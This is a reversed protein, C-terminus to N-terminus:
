RGGGVEQWTGSWGPCPSGICRESPSSGPLWCGSLSSSCRQQTGGPQRQGRHSCQPAPRGFWLGCRRYTDEDGGTGLLHSKKTTWKGTTLSFLQTLSLGAPCPSLVQRTNVLCPSLVPTHEGPLSFASPTHEGPLPFASPTHEGPLPFCQRTNVPCPFASPTHEGECCDLSHSITL